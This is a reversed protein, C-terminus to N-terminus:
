MKDDNSALPFAIFALQSIGRLCENRGGAQCRYCFFLFFCFCIIKFLMCVCVCVSQVEICSLLKVIDLGVM